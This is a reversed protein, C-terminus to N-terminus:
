GCYVIRLQIHHFADCEIALKYKPFYLDIRYKNVKYQLRMEEGQFAEMIYGITEQEFKMHSVLELGMCKALEKAKPKNSNSLLRILGDRSLFTVQQVGSFTACKVKFVEVNHRYTNISVRINTLGLYKGIDNARYILSGDELSKTDIEDM